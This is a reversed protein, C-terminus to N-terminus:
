RHKPRGLTIKGESNGMLVEYEGRKKGTSAIHRALRVMMSTIM